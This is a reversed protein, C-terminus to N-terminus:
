NKNMNKNKGNNTNKIKNKNKTKNKGNSTNKNKNKKKTKKNVKAGGCSQNCFSVLKKNIHRKISAETFTCM